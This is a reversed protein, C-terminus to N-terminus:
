ILKERKLERLIFISIEQVNESNKRWKLLAEHKVVLLFDYGDRGTQSFAALWQAHPLQMTRSLNIELSSPPLNKHRM